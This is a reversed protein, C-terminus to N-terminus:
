FPLLHSSVKEALSSTKSIVDTLHSAEKSLVDLNPLLRQVSAIRSNIESHNDLITDLEADVKQEEKQLLGHLRKIENIDTISNIDLTTFNLSTNEVM